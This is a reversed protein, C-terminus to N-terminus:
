LANAYVKEYFHQECKQCFGKDSMTWEWECDCDEEVTVDMSQMVLNGNVEEYVAVDGTGSGVSMLHYTKGDTTSYSNFITKM